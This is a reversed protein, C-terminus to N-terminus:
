YEIKLVPPYSSERSAIDLGNDHRTDLGLSIITGLHLEIFESIDVERWRGSSGGVFSAITEGLVPRNSYTMESEKWSTNVVDKIHQQHQSENVIRMRLKASRIDGRALQRLDFKLYTLEYPSGDIHLSSSSGYNTSKHRYTVYTDAIPKLQVITPTVSPAPTPTPTITTQSTPTPTPTATPTPTPTATPTVVVTPIPTASPTPTPVTLCNTGLGIPVCGTNDLIIQDVKVGSEGGILKLTHSGFKLPLAILSTTDGNKYDIWQWSNNIISASDGVKIGCGNDIQLWYSNASIGTSWMRTWVHYIGDEPVAVNLTVSGTNVPLSACPTPTVTPTPTPSATPSPKPTSTVSPTPTPTPTPTPATQGSESITMSDTYSGSASKWNLALQTDSVTVLPFGFDTNQRAAFYQDQGPGGYSDSLAYTGKGGMGNIILVAGRGKTLSNSGSVVCSSNYGTVQISACSSSLALQKSRQYNHDHGQLILDVKERVLLNFYDSGIEDGKIGSSIYNEHDSVIVWKIGAARAQRITNQLWNYHVTGASYDYLLKPGSGPPYQYTQKPSTFIFRALPATKPYDFYFEKAYNGSGISPNTSLQMTVGLSTEIQSRPLCDDAVFEDIVGDLPHDYGDDHGGSILVFPYTQGFSDTSALGAGANINSKVLDCWQKETKTSSNFYAFDGNGIFFQPKLKGVLRFVSNGATTNYGFDGAVGFTFSEAANAVVPEGVRSFALAASMSFVIVSVLMAARQYGGVANIGTRWPQCRVYKTNM